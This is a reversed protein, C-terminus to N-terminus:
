LLGSLFLATNKIIQGFIAFNRINRSERGDSFVSQSNNLLPFTLFVEYGMRFCRMDLFKELQHFFELYFYSRFCELFHFSEYDMFDRYLKNSKDICKSNKNIINISFVNETLVSGRALGSDALKGCRWNPSCAVWVLIWFWVSWINIVCSLTINGTLSYEFLNKLSPLCFSSSIHLWLISLGLFGM